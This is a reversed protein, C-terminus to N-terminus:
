HRFRWEDRVVQDMAIVIGRLLPPLSAGDSADVLVDKRRRLEM